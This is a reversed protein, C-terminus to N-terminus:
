VHSSAKVQSCGSGTPVSIISGNLHQGRCGREDESERSPSMGREPILVHSILSAESQTTSPARAPLVQAPSLPCTHVALGIGSGFVLESRGM